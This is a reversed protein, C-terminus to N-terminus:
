HELYGGRITIESALTARKEVSSLIDEVGRQFPSKAWQRIPAILRLQRPTNQFRGFVWLWILSPKLGTSVPFAKTGYVTMPVRRGVSLLKFIDLRM